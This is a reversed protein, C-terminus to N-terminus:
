QACTSILAPLVATVLQVMVSLVAPVCIVFKHFPVSDPFRTVGSEHFLDIAALLLTLKPKQAFPEPVGPKAVNMTAPLLVLETADERLEDEDDRLEDKDREEDIEDRDDLLIEELLDETLDDEELEDLDEDLLEM